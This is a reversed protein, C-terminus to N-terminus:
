NPLNSGSKIYQGMNEDLKKPFDWAKNQEVPKNKYDPDLMVLLSALLSFGTGSSAPNPLILMGKYVPNLLDNWGKRPQLPDM